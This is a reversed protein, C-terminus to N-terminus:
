PPDACSLGPQQTPSAHPGAGPVAVCGPGGAEPSSRGAHPPRQAYHVLRISGARRGAHTSHTHTNHTLAATGYGAIAKGSRGGASPVCRFSPSQPAARWRRPACSRSSACGSCSVARSASSSSAPWRRSCARWRRRGRPWVGTCASSACRPWTGGSTGPPSACAWFAGGSPRSAPPREGTGGGPPSVSRCARSHTLPLRLPTPPEPAASVRKAVRQRWACQIRRASRFQRMLERVWRRSLHGRFAGQIRSACAALLLDAARRRALVGRWRRQIDTAADRMEFRWDVYGRAIWGRTIRQVAVAAAHGKRAHRAHKRALVGRVGAQLLVAARQRRRRELRALRGYEKTEAAKQAGAALLPAVFRHALDASLRPLCRAAGCRARARRTRAISSTATTSGTCSRAAASTARRSASTGATAASRATCRAACKASGSRPM